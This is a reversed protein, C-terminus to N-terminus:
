DVSDRPASQPRLRAATLAALLPAVSDLVLLAGYSGSGRGLEVRMAPGVDPSFFDDFVATTAWTVALVIAAVVAVGSLVGRGRRSWGMLLVCLLSALLTTTLRTLTWPAIEKDMVEALAPGPWM